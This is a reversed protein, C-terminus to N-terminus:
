TKDNTFVFIRNKSQDEARTILWPFPYSKYKKKFLPNDRHTDINGIMIYKDIMPMMLEVDPGYINGKDMGPKWKATIYAGIVTNPKYKRVADLAELTEVDPPYTIPIQGASLYYLQMEKDEQQKLDTIPIGLARGIAGNGAGIEIASGKINERLWQILERTPLVYIGHKFLFYDIEQRTFLTLHTRTWIQLLGDHLLHSEMQSIDCEKIKRGKGPKEYQQWRM